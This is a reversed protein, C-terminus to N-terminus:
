LTLYLSASTVSYSYMLVQLTVDSVVPMNMIDNNIYDTIGHHTHTGRLMPMSLHFCFNRVAM